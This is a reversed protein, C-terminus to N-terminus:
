EFRFCLYSIYSGILREIENEAKWHIFPGGETYTWAQFFAHKVSHFSFVSRLYFIFARAKSCLISISAYLHICFNHRAKSPVFYLTSARFHSSIFLPFITRLIILTFKNLEMEYNWSEIRNILSLEKIRLLFHLPHLFEKKEHSFFFWDQRRYDVTSACLKFDMEEFRLGLKHETKYSHFKIKKFIFLFLLHLFCFEFNLNSHKFPLRWHDSTHAFPVPDIFWNARM